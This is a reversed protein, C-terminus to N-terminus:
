DLTEPCTTDPTYPGSPNRPYEETPWQPTTPPLGPGGEPPVYGGSVRDAEKHQIEKM